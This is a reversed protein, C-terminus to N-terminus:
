PRVVQSKKVLDVDEYSNILWNRLNSKIYKKVNFNAARYELGELFDETRKSFLVNRATITVYAKTYKM